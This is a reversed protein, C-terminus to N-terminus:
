LPEAWMHAYVYGTSKTATLAGGYVGASTSGSIPTTAEIANEAAYVVGVMSIVLMLSILVAIIKKNKLNKM